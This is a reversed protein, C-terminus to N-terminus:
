IKVTQMNYKAGGAQVNSDPGLRRAADSRDVSGGAFSPSARRCLM